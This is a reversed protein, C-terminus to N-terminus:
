VISGGTLVLGIGDSFDEIETPVLSKEDTISGTGLPFHVIRTPILGIRAPSPHDRNLFTSDRYFNSCKYNDTKIIFYYPPLTDVPFLHFKLKSGKGNKTNM